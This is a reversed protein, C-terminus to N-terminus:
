HITCKCKEHKIFKVEFPGYVFILVQDIICMNFYSLFFYQHRCSVIFYIFFQSSNILPYISIQYLLYLFINIVLDLHYTYLNGSCFEKLKKQIASFTKFCQLFFNLIPSYFLNSLRSALFWSAFIKILACYQRRFTPSQQGIRRDTQSPIIKYYLHIFATTETQCQCILTKLSVERTKIYM